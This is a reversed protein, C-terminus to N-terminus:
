TKASKRGTESVLAALAAPISPDTAERYPDHPDFLRVELGNRLPFGFAAHELWMPGPPGGYLDDGVLPAGLSSCIARIQHYRGTRLHIAIHAEGPRGRAAAAALVEIWAPDGGSRVVRARRGERRLYRRHTGLLSAPDDDLAVRALYGKIWRGARIMESHFACSSADRAVLLAGSTTRDLRHPLRAEPWRQMAEVFERMADSHGESSRDPPKRVVVEEAGRFLVAPGHPEDHM